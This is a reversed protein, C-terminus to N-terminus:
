PPDSPYRGRKSGMEGYEKEKRKAYEALTELNGTIIAVIAVVGTTSYAYVKFPHKYKYTIDGFLEVLLEHYDSRIFVNEDRSKAKLTVVEIVVGNPDSFRKIEYPKLCDVTITEDVFKNFLTKSYSRIVGIRTKEMWDPPTGKVLLIPFIGWGDLLQVKKYTKSKFRFLEKRNKKLSKM